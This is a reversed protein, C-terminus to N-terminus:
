SLGPTKGVPQVPLHWDKRGRGGRCINFASFAGCSGVGEQPTNEAILTLLKGNLLTSQNSTISLEEYFLM